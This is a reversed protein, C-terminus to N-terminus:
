GGQTAKIILIKDNEQVIFEDWKRRSIVQENVAIAIGTYDNIGKKNLITSINCLNDLELPVDNIFIIM